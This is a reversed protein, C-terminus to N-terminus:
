RVKFKAFWRENFTLGVNIRFMNEKILGTASRNVWEVGVNLLSRHNYNNVIPIGLGLSASIEKPGDQKNIMIYPTSYSVGARYHLQSFFNRYREGKCYEGGLTLKQMDKLQGSVLTYSAKDNVVNFQPMKIDAWKQLQYDVGLKLQNNHNWMLGVGFVHPLSLADKIAYSTTDNVATQSNKSIINCVADSNLKHGLSYTLGLTIANKKSLKQTYQLGFDAKYSKVEYTYTKSLTNIYSDSYSNVVTRELNGWLYAINAGIALGKFPEWGLGFYAQRIGGTGNFTNSYTPEPLSPNPKPNVNSRSTYSYGVNTYPMLGFSVGVHKFARFAANIYEINGNNANKKHGNEDFNTMQLSLGADFIFSLSDLASYSAPNQFNIQNHEHFGYALGNMSRNFSSSQPSLTGLGFQSYPSNTGSQAMATISLAVCLAATLIKKM